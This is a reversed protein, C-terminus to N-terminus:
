ENYGTERYEKRNWALVTQKWEEVKRRRAPTIGGTKVWEEMEEESLFKSCAYEDTCVTLWETIAQQREEETETEGEQM